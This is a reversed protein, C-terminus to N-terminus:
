VGDKSKRKLKGRNDRRRTRDRGNPRTVTSRKKESDQKEEKQQM